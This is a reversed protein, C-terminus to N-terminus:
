LYNKVIEDVVIVPEPVKFLENRKSEIPDNPINLKYTNMFEQEEPTMSDITMYLTNFIKHLIDKDDIKCLIKYSYLQNYNFAIFMLKENEKVFNYIKNIMIYHENSSNEKFPDVLSGTVHKFKVYQIYTPSTSVVDKLYPKLGMSELYPYITHELKEHGYIYEIPKVSVSNEHDSISKLFGFIMIAGIVFVVAFVGLIM